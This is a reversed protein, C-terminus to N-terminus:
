VGRRDPGWIFKHTQVMLRVNGPIENHSISRLLYEAIRDGGENNVPTIIINCDPHAKRIFGIVFDLDRKDKVIFKIQDTDRLYKLNSALFSGEEGSSPTKVDMSMMMGTGLDPFASIDLSGNTELDVEYDKEILVKALEFSAEQVLPEGGTLCILEIGFEGVINLIEEITMSKGDSIDLAYPTDCWTCRLNCGTLRIFITPLGTHIGEGQFSAFIEYVYLNLLFVENM